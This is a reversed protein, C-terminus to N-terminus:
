QLAATVAEFVQQPAQNGDVRVVVGQREYYPIVDATQAAYAALRVRVKDETDDERQYLAKAGCQDCVDAVKPPAFKAHFVAGCSKCSRRGTIRTVIADDPVAMVVVKTISTDIESLMEDLATAQALTRPFGDLIFGDVTDSAELRERAMGLILADPVLKGAEMTSKAELGLATGDRVNQRLIDGTSIQPIGYREMLRKAQTGKGSGPAGVLIVNRRAAM